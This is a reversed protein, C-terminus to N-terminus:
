STKIHKGTRLRTLLIHKTMTNITKEKNSCTYKTNLAVEAYYYIIINIIITM